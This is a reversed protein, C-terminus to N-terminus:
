IANNSTRKGSVLSYLWPKRHCVQLTAFLRGCFVKREGTRTDKDKLRYHGGYNVMSTNVEYLTSM